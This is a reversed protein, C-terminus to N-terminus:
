HTNCFEPVFSAEGETLSNRRLRGVPRQGAATEHIKDGADKLLIPNNSVARLMGDKGLHASLAESASKITDASCHLVKPNKCIAEAAEGAGLVNVLAKHNGKM